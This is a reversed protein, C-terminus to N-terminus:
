VQAMAPRTPRAPGTRPRLQSGGAQRWQIFSLVMSVTYGAWAFWLFAVSAQAERCRKQRGHAGNTVENHLTYGQHCILM